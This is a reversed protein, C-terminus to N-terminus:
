QQRPCPLKHGPGCELQLDDMVIDTGSLAKVTKVVQWCCGNACESTAGAPAGSRMRAILIYDETYVGDFTASWQGYDDTQVVEPTTALPEIPSGSLPAKWLTVPWSALPEGAPCTVVRGRVTRAEASVVSVMLMALVILLMARRAM